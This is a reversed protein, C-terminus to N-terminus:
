SRSEGIANPALVVGRLTYDSINIQENLIWTCLKSVKEKSSQSSGGAVDVLVQEHINSVFFFHGPRHLIGIASVGSISLSLRLKLTALLRQKIASFNSSNVYLQPVLGTVRNVDLPPLAIPSRCVGSSSPPPLDPRGTYTAVVTASTVIALVEMAGRNFEAGAVCDRNCM